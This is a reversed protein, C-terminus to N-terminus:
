RVANATITEFYASMDGYVKEANFQEEYLHLAKSSMAARMGPDRRLSEILAVLGGADGSAYSMGCGHQKLLGDAYGDPLSSIVPLGASLYEAMKNPMNCMFNATPRYPALGVSALRMLTWLEAFGVRGPFLVTDCGSAMRRYHSLKDGDGCLVFKVRASQQKLRIAAQIVTELDFQRGITGLFCVVFGASERRLGLGAWYKTASEIGPDPPQRRVYGFPFHRDWPTRPRRAYSLGWDVFGPSMGTIATAQRCCKALMAYMPWVMGKAMPRGWHPALDIFVDPWMDQIDLVVPIANRRGFSTAALSFDITPFSCHIIDPRQERCARRRFKLGLQVHDVIRSVSVNHSYGISHLLNITLKSQVAVSHDRPFRHKKTFHDFTSTWWVVEHGRRALLDGLLGVRFLRTNPGDIPLPEGIQILWARM